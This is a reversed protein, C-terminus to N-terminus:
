AAQGEEPNMVERSDINLQTFAVISTIDLYAIVSTRFITNGMGKILRSILDKADKKRNKGILKTSRM